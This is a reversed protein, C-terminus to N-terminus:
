RQMLFSWQKITLWSETQHAPRLGEDNVLGFMDKIKIAGQSFSPQQSVPVNFRSCPQPGEKRAMCRLEVTKNSCTSRPRRKTCCENGEQGDDAHIM